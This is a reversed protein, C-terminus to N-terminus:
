RGVAKYLGAEKSLESTCCLWCKADKSPHRVPVDSTVPGFVVEENGGMGGGREEVRHISGNSLDFDRLDDKIGGKRESLM